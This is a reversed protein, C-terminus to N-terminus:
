HEKLNIKIKKIKEKSELEIKTLKKGDADKMHNM